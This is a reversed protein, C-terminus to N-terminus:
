CRRGCSPMARCELASKIQPTAGDKGEVAAQVDDGKDEIMKDFIKKALRETIEPPVKFRLPAYGNHNLRYVASKIQNEINDSDFITKSLDYEALKIHTALVDSFVKNSKGKTETYAKRM